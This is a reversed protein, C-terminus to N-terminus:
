VLGEDGGIVRSDCYVLKSVASLFCIKGLGELLIRFVLTVPGDLTMPRNRFWHGHLPPTKIPWASACTGAGQDPIPTVGGMCGLTIGTLHGWLLLDPHQTIVFPYCGFLLPATQVWRISSLVWLGFNGTGGSKVLTPNTSDVLKRKPSCTDAHPGNGHSVCFAESFSHGPPGLLGTGVAEQYRSPM